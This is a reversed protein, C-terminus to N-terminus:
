KGTGTWDMVLGKANIHYAVQYFPALPSKAITLIHKDGKCDPTMFLRTNVCHSWTNGLAATVTFDGDLELCDFEDKDHSVIGTIQNTVVVPIRYCEAICKLITAQKCLLAARKVNGNKQRTDFEKRVLSAISDVVILKIDLTDVIQKLKNLRKMLDKCTMENYIHINKAMHSLSSSDKYKDNFRAKAIEILRQATFAGETDIYIVGGHSAAAISM